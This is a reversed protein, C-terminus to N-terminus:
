YHIFVCPVSLCQLDWLLRTIFLICVYPLLASPSLLGPASWQPLSHPPCVKPNRLLRDTSSILMQIHTAMEERRLLCLVSRQVSAAACLYHDSPFLLLKLLRGPLSLFPSQLTLSQASKVPSDLLNQGRGPFAGSGGSFEGSGGRFLWKPTIGTQM